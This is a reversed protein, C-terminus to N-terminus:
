YTEFYEDHEWKSVTQGAVYENAACWDQYRRLESDKLRWLCDALAAGLTSRVFESKGFLELADGLNRPLRPAHPAQPDGAARGPSMDREVGAMGSSLQATLYLYSNACPEGIRNEIHTGPDGFGGLVRLFAGRNEAAWVARSPSLSFREDIRQYGNVTPVCLLSVEAAHHILGGLYSQGFESLLAGEAAFMNRQTSRQAVSQHLHWGSPDFGPIGPLAMFSAHYGERACIQKVTSRFLLMADAAALGEMPSFTFELQGPGSEHEVTRLPLGLNLLADAIPAIIPELADTLADLNFQYGRDVPQVAPAQGQIGFGGIRGPDDQGTLRTLYWEAELGVVFEMDAAQLSTCARRLAARSSLPHPQGGRLYEDGIVWGVRAQTYPLVRFTLPDPVM